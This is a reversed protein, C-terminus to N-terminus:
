FSIVELNPLPSPLVRIVTGYFAVLELGGLLLVLNEDSIIIIFCMFCVEGGMPSGLEM